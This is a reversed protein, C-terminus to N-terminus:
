KVFGASADSAAAFGKQEEKSFYYDWYSSTGHKHDLDIEVGGKFVMNLKRINSINELPDADIIILDALKGKEVTGLHDLVGCLDACNRTAAILADMESVGSIVFQEIELIGIEGIPTSDSGTCVKVGAKFANVL